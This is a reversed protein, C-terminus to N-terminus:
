PALALLIGLPNSGAGGFEGQSETEAALWDRCGVPVWLLQFRRQVTPCVRLMGAELFGAVIHRRTRRNLSLGAGLDRLGLSDTDNFAKLMARAAPRRLVRVALAQNPDVHPLCFFQRRRVTFSKVTGVKILRELHHVVSGWPLGTFRILESCSASTKRALADLIASRAAGGRSYPGRRYAKGELFGGAKATGHPHNSRQGAAPVM